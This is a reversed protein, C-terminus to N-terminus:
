WLLHCIGARPFTCAIMRAMPASLYESRSVACALVWAVGERSGRGCNTPLPATMRETQHHSPVPPAFTQRGVIAARSMALMVCNTLLHMAVQSYNVAGDRGSPCMERRVVGDVVFPNPSRNQAPCQGARLNVPKSRGEAM